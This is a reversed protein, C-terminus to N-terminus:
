AAKRSQRAKAAKAASREGRTPQPREAAAAKRTLNPIFRNLVEDPVVLPGNAAAAELQQPVVKQGFPPNAVTVSFRLERLKGTHRDRGVIPQALSNGRLIWFQRPDAGALLLAARAICCARADVDVGILTVARGAERGHAERFRALYAHLLVGAGCAPDIVWQEEATGLSDLGAITALFLAVEWPTFFAGLAQKGSLGRADQFTDGLLTERRFARSSASDIAKLAATLAHTPEEYYRESPFFDDLQGPWHAVCADRARDFAAGLEHSPTDVIEEWRAGPPPQGEHADSSLEHLFLLGLGGDDRSRLERFRTVLPNQRM